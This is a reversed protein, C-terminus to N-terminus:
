DLTHRLAPDHRMDPSLQMVTLSHQAPRLQRTPWHVRAVQTLRPPAHVAPLWHQEPRQVPPMQREVVQRAVPIEQV